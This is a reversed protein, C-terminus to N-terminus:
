LTVGLPPTTSFGNKSARMARGNRNSSANLRKPTSQAIGLATCNGVDSRAVVHGGLAAHHFLWEEVCANGPREQQQQREVEEAHEARNGSCHLKGRGIQSCRSGWPRRPPFAM